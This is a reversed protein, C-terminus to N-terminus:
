RIYMQITKNFLYAPFSDGIEPDDHSIGPFITRERFVNYVYRRYWIDKYALYRALACEGDRVPVLYFSIKQMEKPPVDLL